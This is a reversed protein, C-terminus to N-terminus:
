GNQLQDLRDQLAKMRNDRTRERNTEAAIWHMIKAKDDITALAEELQRVNEFSEYEDVRPAGPLASTDDAADPPVEPTAEPLEPAAELEDQGPKRFHPPGIEGLLHAAEKEDCLAYGVGHKAAFDITRQEGDRFTLNIRGPCRSLIEITKSM